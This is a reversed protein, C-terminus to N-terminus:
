NKIRNIMPWFPAQHYKQQESMEEEFLVEGHDVQCIRELREREQLLQQSKMMTEVTYKHLESHIKYHQLKKHDKGRTFESAYDFSRRRKTNETNLINNQHVMYSNETISM